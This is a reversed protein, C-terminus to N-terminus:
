GDEALTLSQDLADLAADAEELTVTLPPSLRIVNRYTGIQTALIGKKLLTGVVLNTEDPAQKRTERDKVLEVGLLLGQGRVDGILPHAEAQEHLRQKMHEGVHTANALLDREEIEDIVASAAVCAIANGAFSGGKVMLFESEKEMIERTAVLGAMSIGNAFAKGMFLIDPKVGSHEIGFMKGTRGFGTAVEDDVLLINNDTCIERLGQLYGHPPPIVGAVQQLPETFISSVEDPHAVTDFTYKIYELCQLGCDPHSLKFPCRYCYPYPVHVVGPVLPLCHRRNDSHDAILSLTGISYGYHGGLFSVIVQKGTVARVLKMAFETADSGTNCFEFGGRVCEPVIQLVRELLEVRPISPGKIRSVGTLDLQTKVAEVIRPNRHGVSLTLSSFDMYRNGDVDTLYIGESHKYTPHTQTKPSVTNWRERYKRSNPGPPPTVINPGTM